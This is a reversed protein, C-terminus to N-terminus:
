ECPIRGIKRYLQEIVEETLQVPNNKLRVPNVSTKLIDLEEKPINLAGLALGDLIEQFKRVACKPCETGMAAAHGHAIGYRSTLKYCMAYSMVAIADVDCANIGFM